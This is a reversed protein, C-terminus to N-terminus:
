RRFPLFRRFFGGERKIPQQEQVIEHRQTITSIQKAEMGKESRTLWAHVTDIVINLIVDRDEKRIGWNRYNLMIQKALKKKLTWCKFNIEDRTLNALAMGRHTYASVISLLKGLGTDNILRSYRAEYRMGKPDTIDVIPIEGKLKHEIEELLEENSLRFRAINSDQIVNATPFAFNGEEM